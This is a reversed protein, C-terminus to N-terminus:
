CANLDANLILISPTGLAVNARIFGEFPHAAPALDERSQASAATPLALVLGLLLHRM